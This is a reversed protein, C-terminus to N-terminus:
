DRLFFRHLNARSPHNDTVQRNEQLAACRRADSAWSPRQYGLLRDVWGSIATLSIYSGLDLKPSRASRLYRWCAFCSLYGTVTPAIYRAVSFAIFCRPHEWRGFPQVQKARSQLVLPLMAFCVDSSPLILCLPLNTGIFNRVFFHEGLSKPWESESLRTSCLYCSQILIRESSFSYPFPFAVVLIFLLSDLFLVLHLALTVFPLSWLRLTACFRTATVTLLRDCVLAACPRTAFGICSRHHNQYQDNTPLTTLLLRNLQANM